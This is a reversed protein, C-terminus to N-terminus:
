RNPVQRSYSGRDIGGARHKRRHQDGADLRAALQGNGGIDFVVGSAKASGIWPGQSISCIFAWASCTPASHRPSMTVETSRDLGATGHPKRCRRGIDQCLGQDDRGPGMAFHSPRGAPVSRGPNRRRRRRWRRRSRRDRCPLDHDDRKAAIGSTSSASNRVMVEGGLDGHTWRFRRYQNRASRMRCFRSSALGLIATIQSVATSSTSPVVSGNPTVPARSFFMLVPATLSIAQSPKKTTGDAM